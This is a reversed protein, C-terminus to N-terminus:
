RYIKVPIEEKLVNLDIKFDEISYGLKEITLLRIEYGFQMGKIYTEKEQYSIKDISTFGAAVAEANGDFYAMYVDVIEGDLNESQYNFIKPLLYSIYKNNPLKFRLETILKLHPTAAFMEEFSIKEFIDSGQVYSNFGLYDVYKYHEEVSTLKINHEYQKNMMDILMKYKQDIEEESMEVLFIYALGYKEKLEALDYEKGDIITTGEAKIMVDLEEYHMTDKKDIPNKITEGPKFMNMLPDKFVYGGTVLTAVLFLASIKKRFKTKKKAAEKFAKDNININKVKESM